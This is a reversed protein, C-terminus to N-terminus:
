PHSGQGKPVFYVEERVKTTVQVMEQLWTIYARSVPDDADNLLRDLAAYNQLRFVWISQSEGGIGGSGAAVEEVWDSEVVSDHLARAAVHHAPQLPSPWSFEVILLIGPRDMM